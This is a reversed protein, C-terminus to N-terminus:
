ARQTGDFDAAVVTHDSPREARRPELDIWCDRCREALTATAMMLDIRWGLGKAIADRSRYDFFSYAIKSPYHLRYLDIFGWNKVRNFAARADDHFCVHQRHREPHHVDVPEPAVNIDGVWLVPQDPVAHQEFWNRLRDFWEIKYAFMPHDLARGQPVYTNLITIGNVRAALLRAKDPPGGDDLGCGLIEAPQRTLLAVGNGGKQGSFYANYGAESFASEPFEADPTKTEQLCLVDPSNQRLWDLVIPLRTRISNVNFSAIRLALMQSENIM